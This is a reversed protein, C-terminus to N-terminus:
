ALLTVAPQILMRGHAHTAAPVELQLEFLSVFGKSM